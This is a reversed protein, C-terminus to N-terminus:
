EAFSIIEASHGGARALRRDMTLLPVALGEALAVYAADYATLRGRLAWIRELFRTSPYRRIPLEALDRVAEHAVRAPLERAGVLRRLAALVELDLLHPASVHRGSALQAAAWEARAGEGVLADVVLSADSVISSSATASRM